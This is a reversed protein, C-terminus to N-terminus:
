VSTSVVPMTLWRGDSVGSPWDGHGLQATRASTRASIPAVPASAMTKAASEVPDVWCIAASSPTPRVTSTSAHVNIRDPQGGGQQPEGLGFLASPNERVSRSGAPFGLRVPHLERDILHTLAPAVESTM